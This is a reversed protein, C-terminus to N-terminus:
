MGQANDILTKAIQDKLEPSVDGRILKKRKIAAAVETRVFREIDSKNDSARIFVNPLTNLRCGIDGDDRSSLFVKVLSASEYIITELADFLEGRLSPDCEDLADIVITAPNTELLALIVEVTEDLMLKEPKRQNVEEKKEKYKKVVLQRIPLSTKSSSLQELICRLIDEPDDGRPREANNRSCYFYAFPAPKSIVSAEQTLLEIFSYRSLITL